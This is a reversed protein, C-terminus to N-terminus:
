KNYKDYLHRYKVVWAKATTYTSHTLENSGEDWEYMDCEHRVHFWTDAFNNECDDDMVRYVRMRKLENLANVCDEPVDYKFGKINM